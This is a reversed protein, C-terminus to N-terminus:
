TKLSKDKKRCKKRLIPWIWSGLNNYLIIPSFLFTVKMTPIAGLALEPATEFVSGLDLSNQLLLRLLIIGL